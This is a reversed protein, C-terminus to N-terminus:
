NFCTLTETKKLNQKTLHWIQEEMYTINCKLGTPWTKHSFAMTAKIDNFMINFSEMRGNKSHKLAPSDM